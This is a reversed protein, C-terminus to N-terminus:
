AAEPPSVSRRTACFTEIRRMKTDESDGGGTVSQIQALEELTLTEVKSVDMGLQSMGATASDQLQKLGLDQASAASALLSFSLAAASIM